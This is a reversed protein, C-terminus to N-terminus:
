TPKKIINKIPNQLSSSPTANLFLCANWADERGPLCYKSNFYFAGRRGEGWAEVAPMFPVLQGCLTAVEQSSFRRMEGMLSSISDPTERLCDQVNDKLSIKVVTADM